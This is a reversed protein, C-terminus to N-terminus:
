TGRVVLLECCKFGCDFGDALRTAITNILVNSKFPRLGIIQSVHHLVYGCLYSVELVSLTSMRTISVAKSGELHHQRVSHCRRHHLRFFLLVLVQLRHLDFVEGLDLSDISGFLITSIDYVTKNEAGFVASFKRFNFRTSTFRVVCIELNFIEFFDNPNVAVFIAIQNKLETKYHPLWRM